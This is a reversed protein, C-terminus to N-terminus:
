RSIKIKQMPEWTVFICFEKASVAFPWLGNKKVGIPDIYMGLKSYLDVIGIQAQTLEVATCKYKLENKTCFIM